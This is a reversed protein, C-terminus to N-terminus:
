SHKIQKVLGQCAAIFVSVDSGITIFQIGQAILSIAEVPDAMHIGVPCGVKKGLALIHRTAAHVGSQGEIESCCSLSHSLDAPGIFVLDLGEVTMIEAAKEVGIATEIQVMVITNANAWQTYEVRGPPDFSTHPRRLSVGREGQPAYKCYRIAERVETASEVGPVLIGKAGADLARTCYEQRLAPLRVFPDIQTGRMGAIMAAVTEFTFVGHEMDILAFDLQGAALLAGLQPTTFENIILGLANGGSKIKNKTFAPIQM